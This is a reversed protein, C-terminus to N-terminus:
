DLLADLTDFWAREPDAFARRRTVHITAVTLVKGTEEGRPHAAETLRPTRKAARRRLPRSLGLPRQLEACRWQAIDARRARLLVDLVEFRSNRAEIDLWP